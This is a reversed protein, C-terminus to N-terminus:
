RGRRSYFLGGGVPLLLFEPGAGNANNFDALRTLTANAAAKFAVRWGPTAPPNLKNTGSNSAISRLCCYVRESIPQGM